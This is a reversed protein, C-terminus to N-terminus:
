LDPIRLPSMSYPAPFEEGDYWGEVGVSWSKRVDFALKIQKLCSEELEAWRETMRKLDALANEVDRLSNLFAETELYEPEGAFPITGLIEKIETVSVKLKVSKRLFM